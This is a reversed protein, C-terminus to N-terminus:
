TFSRSCILDTCACVSREDRRLRLCYLGDASSLQPLWRWGVQEFDCTFALGAEVLTDTNDMDHGYDRYGKEM